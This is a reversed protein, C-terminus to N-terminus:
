PSSFPSFSPLSPPSPSSSILTYILGNLYIKIIRSALKNAATLPIVDAFADALVEEPPEREVQVVELIADDALVGNLLGDGGGEEEVEGDDEGGHCEADQVGVVGM